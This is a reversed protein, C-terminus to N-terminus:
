RLFVLILWESRASTPKFRTTVTGKAGTSAASRVLLFVRDLVSFTVSFIIVNLVWENSVTLPEKVAVWGLATPALSSARIALVEVVEDLITFGCGLSGTTTGNETTSTMDIDLVNVVFLNEIVASSALLGVAPSFGSSYDSIFLVGVWSPVM